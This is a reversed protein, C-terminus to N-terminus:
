SGRACDSHLAKQEGLFLHLTKTFVVCYIKVTSIMVRFAQKLLGQKLQFGQDAIVLNIGQIFLDTQVRAQQHPSLLKFAM